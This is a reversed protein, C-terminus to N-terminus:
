LVAGAVALKQYNIMIVMIMIFQLQWTKIKWIKVM